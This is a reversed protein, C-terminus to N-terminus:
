GTPNSSGPPAYPAARPPRRRGEDGRRHRRHRHPDGASRRAAHSFGRTRGPPTARVRGTIRPTPALDHAPRDTLLAADFADRGYVKVILESGDVATAAVAFQGADQRDAVGLDLIGVGLEALAYGVDDLSPRGASSGVILHVIAAAAAACLVGALVGFLPSLQLSVVAFSGFVLM